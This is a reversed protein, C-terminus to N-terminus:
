LGGVVTRARSVPRSYRCFVHRREAENVALSRKCQL